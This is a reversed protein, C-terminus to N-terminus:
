THCSYSLPSAMLRPRSTDRLARTFDVDSGSTDGENKPKKSSSVNRQAVTDAPHPRKRSSTAVTPEAINDDTSMSDDTDSPTPSSELKVVVKKKGYTSYWSPYIAKAMQKAKWNDACLRMEPVQAGLERYFQLVVDNRVLGWTAPLLGAGLLQQWIGHAVGRALRARSGSVSVGQEDELYLMNVNIDLALRSGGRLKTINVGHNENAEKKDAMFINYPGIALFRVLPYDAQSLQTDQSPHLASSSSSTSHNLLPPIATMLSNM